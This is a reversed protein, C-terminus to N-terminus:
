ASEYKNEQLFYEWEEFTQIIKIFSKGEIAMELVKKVIDGWDYYLNNIIINCFRENIFYDDDVNAEWGHKEGVKKLERNIIYIENNDDMLDALMKGLFSVKFEGYESSKLVYGEDKRQNIGVFRRQGDKLWFEFGDNWWQNIESSGLNKLGKKNIREIDLNELDEETFINTKVNKNNM